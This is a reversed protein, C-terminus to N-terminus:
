PVLVPKSLTSFAGQSKCDMRDKLDTPLNFDLHQRTKLHPMEPAPNGPEIKRNSFYKLIRLYEIDYSHPGAIV